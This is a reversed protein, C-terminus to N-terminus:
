PRHLMREAITESRQVCDEISLGLFYNGTFHLGNAKSQQDITKVLEDQGLRLSPLINEKKYLKQFHDKRIGLVECIINEKVADSGVNPKFHFVFGRYREHGVVDRSVVSFFDSRPAFIGAVEPLKLDSKKVVVGMAESYAVPIKALAMTLDENIDKVLRQAVHPPTAIALQKGEFSQGDTLHARKAEELLEVQNVRANTIVKINPHHAMKEILSQLGNKLTFSRLIDKRKERKKFLMDAPFDDVSQCPVAAFIHKFYREYNHNGLIKSYYSKVTEGEKKQWFIRPVSFLAELKNVPSVVSKLKGKKYIKYPVKERPMLEQLWDCAEILRIFAGYSNYTTHAGMEIWFHDQAEDKASQICGGLQPSAELVLVKQDKQALQFALSIGSIGAGVIIADYM